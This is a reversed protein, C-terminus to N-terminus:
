EGPDGIAIREVRAGRGAALTIHNVSAFSGGSESPSGSYFAAVGGASADFFRHWHGLALYDCELAAIEATSIRSSRHADEKADAVHHGHALVVRWLDGPHPTYGELPLNDPTHAVMGRSWVALEIEEFVMHQGEPAAAFRIHEGADSLVLRDHISPPGLADHNGCTIITPIDLRALEAIADDIQEEPVRSEDFLDGVILLADVSRGKAVDVVSRLGGLREGTTLDEGIHVDSTHLLRLTRRSTGPRRGPMM